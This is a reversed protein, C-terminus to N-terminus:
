DHLQNSILDLFEKSNVIKINKYNNLILLDKDGSVIYSCNGDIAAEIVKNDEKDRVINLHTSPYVVESIILIEGKVIQLQKESFNFKKRLVELIEVIITLSTIVKINNQRILQLLLRQIGNFLLSSIIINSDLVIRYKNVM